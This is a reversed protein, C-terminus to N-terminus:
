FTFGLSFVHANLGINPSKINSNSLHWLRYNLLFSHGDDCFIEVGAGTQLIFEFATSIERAAEHWDGISFGAGGFVYPAWKRQPNIFKYEVQIPTFGFLFNPANDTKVGNRDPDAISIATGAEIVWFLAGQFFSKGILGTLNYKFFPFFYVFDINTRDNVASSVPPLDFTYGYGLQIGFEKTGRAFRSNTSTSPFSQKSESVQDNSSINKTLLKKGTLNNIQFERFSNPYKRDTNQHVEAFSTNWGFAFILTVLCILPNLPFMVIHLFNQFKVM